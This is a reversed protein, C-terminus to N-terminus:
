SFTKTSSFTIVVVVAVVVGPDVFAISAVVFLVTCVVSASDVVVFDGPTDVVVPLGIIQKGYRLPTPELRNLDLYNKRSVEVDSPLYVVTHRLLHLLM